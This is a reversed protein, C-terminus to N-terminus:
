KTKKGFLDNLRTRDLALKEEWKGVQKDLKGEFTDHVVTKFDNFSNVTEHGAIKTFLDEYDADTLTIERDLYAGTKTTGGLFEELLDAKNPDTDNIIIQEPM